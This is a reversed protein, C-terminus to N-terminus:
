GMNVIKEFASTRRVQNVGYFSYRVTREWKSFNDSDMGIEINIGQFVGLSYFGNFDGILGTGSIAEIEEIFRIGLVYFEGPAQDPMGYLYDGVANKLLRIPMTQDTHLFGMKPSCAGNVRCDQYAYGIADINTIAAGTNDVTPATTGKTFSGTAQNYIGYLNEGTNDGQLIQNAATRRIDRYAEAVIFSLSDPRSMLEEETVVFMGKIMHATDTKLAITFTSKSPASGEATPAENRTLATQQRYTVSKNTMPFTSIVDLLSTDFLAYPVTVDQIQYPSALLSTTLEGVAGMRGSLVNRMDIDRAGLDISIPKRAQSSSWNIMDIDGYSTRPLAKVDRHDEVAEFLNRYKPGSKKAGSNAVGNTAEMGRKAAEKEAAERKENEQHDRKLKAQHAELLQATATLKNNAAQFAEIDAKDSSATAKKLLEDAEARQAGWKGNLDKVTSDQAIFTEFEM